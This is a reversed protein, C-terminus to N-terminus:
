RSSCSASSVPFSRRPASCVAPRAPGPAGTGELLTGKASLAPGVEILGSSFSEGRGTRISKYGDSEIFRSGPDGMATFFAGQGVATMPGGFQELQQASKIRLLREEMDKREYPSLERGDADARAWIAEMERIQDAAKQM